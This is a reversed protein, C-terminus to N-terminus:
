VIESLKGQKLCLFMVVIKYLKNEARKPSPIQNKM